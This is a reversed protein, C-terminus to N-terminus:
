HHAGTPHDIHQDCFPNNATPQCADALHPLSTKVNSLMFKERAPLAQLRATVSFSVGLAGVCPGGLPLDVPGM